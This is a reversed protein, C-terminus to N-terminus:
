VPPLNDRKEMVPNGPGKDRLDVAQSFIEELQAPSGPIRGNFLVTWATPYFVYDTDPIYGEITVGFSTRYETVAQEAPEPPTLSDIGGDIYMRVNKAGVHGPYVVPIWTQLVGGSRWFANAVRTIFESQTEPRLCIHDVQYKFDWAAPMRSAAVTGLDQRAVDAAVTPWAIRRWRKYSYSQASRYSWGKRHVSILPYKPNSPYPEYVPTGARDKLDLLYKFPNDASQWLNKFQAFADMPASFLVPVPYGDAVIFHRYAWRQLGLEHWRMANGDSRPSVLAEAM